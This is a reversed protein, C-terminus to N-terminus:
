DKRGSLQRLQRTEALVQEYNEVDVQQVYNIKFEELFDSVLSRIEELSQTNTLEQGLFEGFHRVLQNSLKTAVPDESMARFSEYAGKPSSVALKSFESVFQEVVQKPLEKLGPIQQVQQYFPSQQLAGELSYQMLAEIDPQLQPIVKFVTAQVLHTAIAEVENIDNIDIYRRSRADLVQDLLTGKEIEDQLQNIMQVVVIETLEQGFSTIITRTARNRVRNIDFLAAQELRASVPIARLWRWFPLFLFVDYWRWLMADLWNFTAFRRSILYTRGLYELFFIIVFPLDIKWFNDIFEGNEGIQRYYNRQLIPTINDELWVLEQELNKTSLYEQSWFQQFSDKSSAQPSQNTQERILRKIKELDGSKDAIAFPDENIMDISQEQLSGLTEEVEPSDLGTAPIQQALREVTELYTKTERHPEIGKIPDYWTTIRPLYRFYFDRWPIYSINFLVLGFNLIALVAMTQDFWLGKRTHRQKISTHKTPKKPM